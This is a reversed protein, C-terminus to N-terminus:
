LRVADRRGARGSFRVKADFEEVAITAGKGGYVSRKLWERETLLAAEGRVMTHWVRVESDWRYGRAKLTDKVEFPAATARVRYSRESAADLLRGLGTGPSVPLVHDIVALVAHCDMLARHGDFFWGYSMAISSLKASSFDEAAWDIETCSCAWSAESFIPLRAEV